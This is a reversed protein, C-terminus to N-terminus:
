RTIIKMGGGGTKGLGTKTLNYTFSLLFFRQLNNVRSDEIYNQNTSRNIGVNKNLIDNASVKLEGRNFRLMQKSLSSNWLPVTSNFGDTFQKNVRYNLDTAFFLGKALQWGVEVNCEKVLHEANRASPISYSTKSYNVGASFSLNLKETPNLELRVEPGINNSNITNATGNVFQKGHYQTFNATIDITGKLWHVPFGFNLNGNMSYVGNVNVPMVSDIGLNNIRDNNVIKNQTKMFSIFAFFNRNKFPDVLSSNFHIVHTFEQKLNPNGQKIYLPNSNDPVPQLQAVTPQSTSTSYSLMINKFRSFNYQFRANPLLDAFMKRIFSDKVGTIVKGKLGAMQWAVGLAYSYLKSQKRIRIGATNFRYTNEYNNTLLNNVIDFKGNNHNYDWTTKENSNSTYANVLSLELLSKKFIPETYVARANYGNLHESYTNKQNLSDTNLLLDAADYFNTMSELHGNGSSNNINNLLNM